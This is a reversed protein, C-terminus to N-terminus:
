DPEIRGIVDGPELVALPEIGHMLRGTAPAMIAHRCGEIMVEAVRLGQDVLARNPAAWELLVAQPSTAGSWLAEDIRIPTM